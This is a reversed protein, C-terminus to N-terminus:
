IVRLSSHLSNKVDRWWVGRTVNNASYNITKGCAAREWRMILKGNKFSCACRWLHQKICVFDGHQAWSLHQKKHQSLFNESRQRESLSKLKEEWGRFINQDRKKNVLNPHNLTKKIPSIWKPTFYHRRVDRCLPSSFYRCILLPAASKLISYIHFIYSCSSATLTKKKWFLSVSIDSSQSYIDLASLLLTPM